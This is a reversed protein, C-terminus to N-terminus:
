VQYTDREDQLEKRLKNSQLSEIVMVSINDTSDHYLAYRTLFKAINENTWNKEKLAIVLLIAERSGVTDWFGDCAKIIFSNKSFSVHKVKARASAGAKWGEPEISRAMNIGKEGLRWGSHQSYRSDSGRNRVSQMFEDVEIKADKSLQIGKATDWDFIVSRSDGCNLDYLEKGDIILSMNATSGPNKEEFLFMYIQSARLRKDSTCSFMKEATHKKFTEGEIEWKKLAIVFIDKLAIRISDRNFSTLNELQKKIIDKMHAALFLAVTKGGHGDFLGMLEVTHDKGSKDTIKFNASMHADENKERVTGQISSTSTLYNYTCNEDFEEKGTSYICADVIKSIDSFSLYATGDQLLGVREPLAESSFNTADDLKFNGKEKYYSESKRNEFVDHVISKYACNPGFFEYRDDKLNRYKLTLIHYEEPKMRSYCEFIKERLKAAEKLMKSKLEFSNETNLDNVYLAVIKAYIIIAKEYENCKSLHDALLEPLSLDTKKGSKIDKILQKAILYTYSLSTDEIRGYPSVSDFLDDIKIKNQLETKNKIEIKEAVASEDNVELHKKRIIIIKKNVSDLYVHQEKEIAKDALEVIRDLTGKDLGKFSYSSTYNNNELTKKRIIVLKDKETDVYVYQNKDIAKHALGVLKDLTGSDVGKFSFNTVQM